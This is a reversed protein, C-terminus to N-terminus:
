YDDDITDYAKRLETFVSAVYEHSNEFELSM